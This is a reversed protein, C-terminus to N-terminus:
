FSISFRRTGQCSQRGPQRPTTVGDNGAQGETDQKFSKDGDADDDPPQSTTIGDDCPQATTAGDDFPQSPM